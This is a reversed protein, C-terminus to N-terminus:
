VRTHHHHSPEEKLLPYMEELHRYDDASPPPKSLVKRIKAAISTPSPLVFWFDGERPFNSPIAELFLLLVSTKDAFKKVTRFGEPNQPNEPNFVEAIWLRSSLMEHGMTEPYGLKGIFVEDVEEYLVFRFYRDLSFNLEDSGTLITVKM